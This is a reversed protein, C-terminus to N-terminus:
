LGKRLTDVQLDTFKHGVITTALGAVRPAGDHYFSAVVLRFDGDAILQTELAAWGAVFEDAVSEDLLNGVVQNECIGRHYTRGRYSRGINLTYHQVCFVVNGPLAPSANTGIIPFDDTVLSQSQPENEMTTIVVQTYRYSTSMVPTWVPIAYDRIFEGFKLRQTASWGAPNDTVAYGVHAFPKSNLGTGEISYKVANDLPIFPM